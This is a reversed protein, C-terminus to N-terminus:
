AKDVTKICSFGKCAKYEIVNFSDGIGPSFIEVRVFGHLSYMFLYHKIDSGTIFMGSCSMSDNQATHTISNIKYTNRWGM